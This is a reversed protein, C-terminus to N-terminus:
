KALPKPPSQPAQSVVREVESAIGSIHNLVPGMKRQGTKRVIKGLVRGMELTDSGVAREGVRVVLMLGRKTNHLEPRVVFAVSSLRKVINAAGPAAADGVLLRNGEFNTLARLDHECDLDISSRSALENCLQPSLGGAQEKAVGVLKFDSLLVRAKPPADAHSPTSLAVVCAAAFVSTLLSRFRVSRHPSMLM